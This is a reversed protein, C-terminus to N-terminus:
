RKIVRMSSRKNENKGIKEWIVEFMQYNEELEPSLFYTTGYGNGVSSIIGNSGLVGLHHKITKYDLKLENALQNANRPRERLAAILTARTRGGKTGAILWWLLREISDKRTFMLIEAGLVM